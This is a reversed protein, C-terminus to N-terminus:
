SAALKGEPNKLSLMWGGHLGGGAEVSARAAERRVEARQGVIRPGGDGRWGLQRQVERGRTGTLPLLCIM